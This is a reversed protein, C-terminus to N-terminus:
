HLRFHEMFIDKFQIALTRAVLHYTVESIAIPCISGFQKELTLFQSAFFFCSVLSPVHGRVIHGYVKFFFNFGSTSDNLIFCYQLLEYVVSSPRNSSFCPSRALAFVFAEWDLILKMELHFDDVFVPLDVKALPHLLRLVGRTENSPAAHTNL